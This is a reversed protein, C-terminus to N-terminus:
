GDAIVRRAAARALDEARLADDLSELPSPPLLDMVRRVVDVIRGFALRAPPSEAGVHGPDSRLSSGGLFAAVAEENAANMIAGATGGAEIVRAALPIAPFREPDPERFELSRLSAWDLSAARGPVGGRRPPQETHEDVSGGRLPPTGSFGGRLPAGSWCLAQQIPGRMDPPALQALVSGDAWEVMAHVVSQPHILVRLQGAGLGFLWHAEVLELAKNMMTASDITVKKGMTWVPHRLAEEPTADACEEVSRDRFAGGSATIIARTVVGSADVPPAGSGRLCAWLGAHESDVPLLRAGTRRAEAVVLSGAAVLTEKNALAVDRGLRVAELTAPLGASGTIASVVVDCEVSRVLDLAASPGHFDCPDAPDAARAVSALAYRSRQRVLGGANARAALGVVEHRVPHLGRAHLSNLHDIVELTQVGISGTSGLVIVRRVDSPM